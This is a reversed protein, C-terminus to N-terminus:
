PFLHPNAGKDGQIELAEAHAHQLPAGIFALITLEQRLSPDHVFDLIMRHPGRGRFAAYLEKKTWNRNSSDPVQEENEDEEEGQNNDAM